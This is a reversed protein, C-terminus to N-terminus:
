KVNQRMGCLTRNKSLFACFLDFNQWTSNYGIGLNVQIKCHFEVTKGSNSGPRVIHLTKKALMRLAFISKEM